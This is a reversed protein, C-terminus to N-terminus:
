NCREADASSLISTYTSSRFSCGLVGPYNHPIFALIICLHTGRRTTNSMADRFMPTQFVPNECAEDKPGAAKKGEQAHAQRHPRRDVNGLVVIVEGTVTQINIGRECRREGPSQRAVHGKIARNHALHVRL